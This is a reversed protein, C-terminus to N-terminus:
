KADGKLTANIRSRLPMYKRLKPGCVIAEALMENSERLLARAEDREAMSDQYMSQWNNREAALALADARAEDREARLRIIEDAAENCLDTLSLHTEDNLIANELTKVIDTM